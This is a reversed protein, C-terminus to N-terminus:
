IIKPDPSTLRTHSSTCFCNPNSVFVATSSVFSSPFANCLNTFINLSIKTGIMGAITAPPRKIPNFLTNVAPMNSPLDMM